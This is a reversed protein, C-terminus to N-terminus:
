LTAALAAHQAWLDRVECQLGEIRNELGFLQNRVAARKGSAVFSPHEALYSEVLPVLATRVKRRAAQSPQDSGSTRARRLMVLTMSKPDEFLSGNEGFSLYYYLHEYEVNNVVICGDPPTHVVVREVITIQLRGFPSDIEAVPPQEWARVM